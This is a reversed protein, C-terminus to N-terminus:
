CIFPFILCVLPAFTGKEAAGEYYDLATLCDEKVGIGAWHRFGM